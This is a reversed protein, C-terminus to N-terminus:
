QNLRQESKTAWKINGADYHGDNDIREITHKPTPKLGVEAFFQEFNTFRFEIGRGGYNHYGSYSKSNCRRQAGQYAKYEPTGHMGHKYRGNQEGFVPKGM